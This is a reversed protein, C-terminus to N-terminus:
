ANKSHDKRWRLFESVVFRAIGRIELERLSEDSLEGAREYEANLRHWDLGLEGILKRAGAENFSDSDRYHPMDIGPQSTGRGPSDLSETFATSEPLGKNLAIVTNVVQSDWVNYFDFAFINMGGQLDPDVVWEAMWSSLRPNTWQRAADYLNITWIMCSAYLFRKPPSRLADEIHPKLWKIKEEPTKGCDSQYSAWTDKIFNVTEVNWFLEEKGPEEGVGSLLIINKGQNRINELTYSDAQNWPVLHDELEDLVMKRVDPWQSEKLSTGDGPTMWVIFVESSHANVFSKMQELAPKLNQSDNPPYHGSHHMVFTGHGNTVRVDFCRIGGNLQEGINKDQNRVCISNWASFAGSNHTGPLAVRWIERGRIDGWLNEMWNENSM